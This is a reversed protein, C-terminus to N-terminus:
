SPRVLAYNAVRLYGRQTALTATVCPQHDSGNAARLPAHFGRQRKLFHFRSDFMQLFGVCPKVAAKMRGRMPLQTSPAQGLRSCPPRLTTDGFLYWAHANSRLAPHASM